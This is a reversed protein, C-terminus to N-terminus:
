RSRSDEESKFLEPHASNRQPRGGPIKLKKRYNNFSLYFAYWVILLAVPVVTYYNLYFGSFTAVCNVSPDKPNYFIKVERGKRYALGEPGYTRYGTGNAIFEIESAEEITGKRLPQQLVRAVYRTVTGTTREGSTLLRWHRSVPLLLILLTIALSAWKSIRYVKM